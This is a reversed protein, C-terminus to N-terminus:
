ATTASQIPSSLRRRPWFIAFAAAILGASMAMMISRIPSRCFVADYDLDPLLDALRRLAVPLPKPAIPPSATDGHAPPSTEVIVFDQGPLTYDLERMAARTIVAPDSHLADLMRRQKAVRLETQEVRQALMRHRLDAAQHERWAPLLVCPTLVCLGLVILLWFTISRGGDGMSAHTIYVGGDIDNPHPSGSQL